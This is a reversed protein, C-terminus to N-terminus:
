KTVKKDARKLIRKEISSHSHPDHVHFLVNKRLFPKLLFVQRYSDVYIIDPTVKKQLKLFQRIASPYHILSDLSWFPKTLYYWGLKIPCNPVEMENLMQQMKGDHWGMFAVHVNHGENKWDRIVDLGVFEKGSVYSGSLFCLINM